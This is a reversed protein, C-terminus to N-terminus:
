VVQTLISQKMRRWATKFEERSSHMTILWSHRRTKINSIQFLLQQSVYYFYPPLTIGTYGIPILPIVGAAKKKGHFFVKWEIRQKEGVSKAYELANRLKKASQLMRTIRGTYCRSEFVGNCVRYSYLAHYWCIANHDSYFIILWKQNFFENRCWRSTFYAM